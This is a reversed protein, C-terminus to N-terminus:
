SLDGVIRLSHRGQKMGINFGVKALKKLTLVTPSIRATSFYGGVILVFFFILPGTQYELYFHYQFSIPEFLDQYYQWDLFEELRKARSFMSHLLNILILRRRYWQEVTSECWPSKLDLIILFIIMVVFARVFSFIINVAQKLIPGILSRNM